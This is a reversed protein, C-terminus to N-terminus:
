RFQRRPERDWMPVQTFITTIEMRELDDALVGRSFNRINEKEACVNMTYPAHAVLTGFHHEEMLKRLRLADEPDIAKAAGGRPNRTFFAFTNADLKLAEKGMHEFGKSSSLHNGIYM